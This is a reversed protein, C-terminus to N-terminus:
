AGRTYPLAASTGATNIVTIPASGASGAPVVAVILSDSVVIYSTANTAGFKVSAAGSVDVVNALFFNEGQIYVSQTAAAATPNAALLLPLNGVLVPNTIWTGVGYRQATITMYAAEDWSTGSRSVTIAYTASYAYDAGLADYFRIDRRNAAGITKSADILDQVFPQFEGNSDRILEVDFSLALTDAYKSMSDAGKAAYTERNRSKPTFAPNVNTVDASQTFTAAAAAKVAILLEFSNAPTGDTQEVADWVDSNSPM